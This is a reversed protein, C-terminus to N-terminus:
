LKGAVEQVEYAELSDGAKVDEYNALKVGCEFGKQVERVDDKERRLGGLAGDYLIKGNRLLRVRSSRTIFGDSVM